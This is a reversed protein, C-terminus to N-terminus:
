EKKVFFMESPMTFIATQRIKRQWGRGNDKRCVVVPM